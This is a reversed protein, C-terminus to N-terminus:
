RRPLERLELPSCYLEEKGRKWWDSTAAREAVTTFHYPRITARITYTSESDPPSPPVAAAFSTSVACTISLALVIRVIRFIM